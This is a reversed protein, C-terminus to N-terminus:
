SNAGFLWHFSRSVTDLVSGGEEATRIHPEDPVRESAMAAETALGVGMGMGTTRGMNREGSTGRVGRIAGKGRSVTPSHLGQRVGGEGEEGEEGDGRLSTLEAIRRGDYKSMSGGVIIGSRRSKSKGSASEKGSGVGVTAPAPPSAAGTGSSMWADFLNTATLVPGPASHPVSSQCAQRLERKRDGRRPFFTLSVSESRSQSALVGSPPTETTTATCQRDNDNDGECSDGSDAQLTTSPGYYSSLQTSISNSNSNSSTVDSESVGESGAERTGDGQKSRWRRIMSVKRSGGKLREKGGAVRDGASGVGRAGGASEACRAGKSLRRDPPQLQVLDWLARATPLATAIHATAEQFLSITDHVDSSWLGEETKIYERYFIEKPSLVVTQTGGIGVGEGEEAGRMRANAQNGFKRSQILREADFRTTSPFARFKTQLFVFLSFYFCSM